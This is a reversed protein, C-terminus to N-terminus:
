AVSRYNKLKEQTLCLDYCLCEWKARTLPDISDWPSNLNLKPTLEKVKTVRKFTEPELYTITHTM